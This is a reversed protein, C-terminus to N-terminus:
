MVKFPDFLAYFLRYEFTVTLEDTHGDACRLLAIEQIFFSLFYGM